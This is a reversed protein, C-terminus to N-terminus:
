ATKYKESDFRAVNEATWLNTIGSQAKAFERQLAAVTVGLEDVKKLRPDNQAGCGILLLPALILPILKM